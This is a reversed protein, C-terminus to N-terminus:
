AGLGWTMFSHHHLSRWRCRCLVPVGRSNGIHKRQRRTLVTCCLLKIQLDECEDSPLTIRTCRVGLDHLQPYHVGSITKYSKYPAELIDECFDLVEQELRDSVRQVCTFDLAHVCYHGLKGM